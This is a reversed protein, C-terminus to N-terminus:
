ATEGKKRYSSTLCVSLFLWFGPQRLYTGSAALPLVGITFSIVFLLLLDPNANKKIFMIATGGFLAMLITGGFIGFHVWLDLLFNHSYRNPYNHRKKLEAMEGHLGMGLPHEAIMGLVEKYLHVRGANHSVVRGSTILAVTRSPPPPKVKPAATSVATAPAPASLKPWLLLPGVLAVAVVAAMLGGRALWATLAGPRMHEKRRINLNVLVLLAAEGLWWFLPGRSGYQLILYLIIGIVLGDHLRPRYLQKATIVALPALMVYGYFMDYPKKAVLLGIPIGMVFCIYAMIVIVSTLKKYDNIMLPIFLMPFGLVLSKLMSFAIHPLTEADIVVSIMIAMALLLYPVVVKRPSRILVLLTVTLMIFCASLRFLLAM